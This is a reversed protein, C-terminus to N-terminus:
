TSIYSELKRKRKRGRGVATHLVCAASSSTPSPNTRQTIHHGDHQPLKIGETGWGKRKGKFGMKKRGAKGESRRERVTAHYGYIIRVGRCDNCLANVGGAVRGVM